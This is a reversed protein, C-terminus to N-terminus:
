RRSSCRAAASASTSSARRSGGRGSAPVRVQRAVERYAHDLSPKLEDFPVEVTLRVRTPSLEEVDTKM